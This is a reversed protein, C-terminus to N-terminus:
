ARGESVVRFCAQCEFRIVIGGSFGAIFRSLLALDFSDGAVFILPSLAMIISGLLMTRGPGYRDAFYGSPIQMSAYPVFYISTILGSQSNSLGFQGSVLKSIPPYDLNSLFFSIITLCVIALVLHKRELSIKKMFNSCNLLNQARPFVYDCTLSKAGVPAFIYRRYGAFRCHQRWM